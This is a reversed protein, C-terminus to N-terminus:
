KKNLIIMISMISIVAFLVMVLLPASVGLINWSIKACEADGRLIYSIFGNLPVRQFLVDLPMGCSTPQQEPPLNMIWLHKAVIKIGFMALILIIFAYVRVINNKPNHLAFFLSLLGITFIVVREAICLPCPSIYQYYEAYLAYLVSIM